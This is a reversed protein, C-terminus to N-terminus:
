SLFKQFSFMAEFCRSLKNASRQGTKMFHLSGWRTDICAPCVSRCAGFCVDGLRCWNTTRRSHDAHTVLSYRPSLSLLCHVPLQHSFAPPRSSLGLTSTRRKSARRNYGVGPKKGHDHCNATGSASAAASHNHFIAASALSIRHFHRSHICPRLTLYSLIM